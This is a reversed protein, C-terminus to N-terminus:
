QPQGVDSSLVRGAQDRGADFKGEIGGRFGLASLASIGGAVIPGKLEDTTAWTALFVLLGSGAALYLGRLIATGMTTRANM